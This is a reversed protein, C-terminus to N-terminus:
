SIPIPPKIALVFTIKTGDYEVPNNYKNLYMTYVYLHPQINLEKFLGFLNGQYRFAVDPDVNVTKYEYNHDIYDIYQLNDNLQQISDFSFDNTQYTELM